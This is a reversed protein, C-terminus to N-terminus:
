CTVSRLNGNETTCTVSAVCLQIKNNVAKECSGGHCMIFMCVLRIHLLRIHLLPLSNHYNKMHHICTGGKYPTDSVYSKLPSCVALLVTLGFM